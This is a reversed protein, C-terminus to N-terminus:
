LHAQSNLGQSALLPLHKVAWLVRQLISFGVLAAMAYFLPILHTPLVWFLTYFVITETGEILGSPMVLSTFSQTSGQATSGKPVVPPDPDQVGGVPADFRQQAQYKELLGSLYMWAATNIYFSALLVALALYLELRAQGYALGIPIGAYVVIDLVIDLYGGLDSQKNQLRALTGDLGDLGRNLLWLGLGLGYLQSGAAGAAGLGVLSGVLTIATPHCHRLPTQTISALIREKAPRLLHDLM